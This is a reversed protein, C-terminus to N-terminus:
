KKLIKVIENNVKNIDGAGLTVVMDGPEFMSGLMECIDDKQVYFTNKRLCLIEKVLRQANINAIPSEGASYIDTIILMDVKKSFCNKFDDWLFKTRTFRHPQFIVIMRKYEFSTLAELTARIETPHHAYDDIVTFGNCRKVQLRREVGKMSKLSKRMTRFDIGLQLGIGIAGLCNRINHDGSLPLSIIGINKNKLFVDFRSNLGSLEINDAYLQAQHNLGYSFTKKNRGILLKRLKVDDYCYIVTRKTNNAFEIFKEKIRKWSKFFDVHEYDINTIISYDPRYLLFTGDSEDAETIFYKGKGFVANTKINKQIGGVMVSPDLRANILIHSVLSTTTTKGHSGTIAITKKKHMLEYLCNARQMVSINKRLAQKLEENDLSIASSFVVLIVDDRINDKSHRLVIRAGRSRLRSIIKSNKLDSGSVKYGSSLLLHAIASMGIGGIGILHIYGTNKNIKSITVM